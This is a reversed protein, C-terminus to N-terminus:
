VRFVKRLYTSLPGLEAPQSRYGIYGDPRVLYLCESGAGYRRHAAGESDLVVPGKFSLASPHADRPVVVVVSVEGEFRAGIELAIEDFRKYGEESPSAGDFLLLTHQPGRLHGWLRAGGPLAVDPARDGARPAEGFDRWEALSPREEGSTGFIRLAHLPARHEEVAPSKRYHLTLGAARQTVRQQVVELSGLFGALGDRLERAIPNRLTVVRTALDTGELTEAAIPRREPEYSDLLSDPARQKVVLALKWALNYADQLGTNMGQGGVPSHIHAADGLLFVRGSRYHPVIRRHIRFTALWGADFLPEIKGARELMVRQFCELTPDANPALWRPADGVLRWSRAGPLPICVVAGEPSLFGHTEDDALDWDVHLDGLIFAEEFQKGDFPLGVSKRAQSHAGDAGLLWPVSCSEEKGGPGVLKAEVRADTQSLGTLAVQREIRVGLSELHETLLRETESQPLSLVFPNPSDLEDLAVHLIRKGGAYANAGHVKRGASIFRDAIGIADLVELTRAMIGLAKSHVSPAPAQDIVRCAVGRRVLEAAALLGTPGAGAVLVDTM